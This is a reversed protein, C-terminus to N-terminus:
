LGAFLPPCEATLVDRVARGFRVIEPEAGAGLRKGLLERGARANLSVALTTETCGPLVSRALGHAQKRDMGRNLAVGLYQRYRERTLRCESLWTVLGGGMREGLLDAPVVFRCDSEDCYRQSRVSFSAHRHRTLEALLTRSVGRVFLTWQVHELVSLHGEAILHAVYAEHPRGRDWSDYCLRGAAEVVGAPTTPVRGVLPRDGVFRCLGDRDIAPRCVVAVTPRVVADPEGPLTDSVDDSVGDGKAQGGPGGGAPEGRAGPGGGGRAARVPGGAM